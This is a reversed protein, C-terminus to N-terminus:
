KKSADRIRTQILTHSSERSDVLVRDDASFFTLSDGSIQGHEADFISPRKGESATLVFKQEVATYVLQNGTAKRGKQEIQIEGNAVIHDLQSASESPQNERSKLFVQISDANMTTDASRVVVNHSFVAKREADVYSLKDATINAPTTKGNKDKQVFVTRVQTSQNGSAQLGRHARDLTIAPAEIIDAARWLRAGGGFTAVESGKSATMTSGTIHIPDASSLLAGGPQPKMDTYTAKVSGQATASGTKRNLQVSDATVSIGADTVRPSGSLTINEDTLTYRARDATATQQGEQYHFDGMQEVSTITGQDNFTAAVDRSTSVRDPKGPTASVVKANPSGFVSKIHNQAGFRGDFQGATIVTKNQAQTIVVEAAGSTVARDLKKTDLFFLDMGAAQLQQSKGSANQALEVGDEAHVKTVHNAPGFDVLVRGAKGKAPSDGKREFNVGGSFVGTRAQNRAGMTVEATSASVNFAKAGSQSAQVGGAGLVRDVTDDDRLLITVKDAVAMRQEQEMRAKQLVIKRPDKTIVASQGTVNAKRPGTTNITVASHLNLQSQHSDYTAGIASGNAEPIRFEIKQETHALGTTKNFTLGSTKVHILNKMERGPSQERGPVVSTESELDIHVEGKSTIDGSNPDFEFDSGYIQDSRNGQRGYVVISVDHLETRGSQKFQEASAAHITFLTKGGEAQSYTFGKASREVNPGIKPPNSAVKQRVRILNNLYVGAVELVVLVAAAAFLRRLLRPNLPM